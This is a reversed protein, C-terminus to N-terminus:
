RIIPCNGAFFLILKGADVRLRASSSSRIERSDDTVGVGGAVGGCSMSASYINRCGQTAFANSKSQIFFLEEIVEQKKQTPTLRTLSTM